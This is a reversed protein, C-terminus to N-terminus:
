AYTECSADGGIRTVTEEGTVIAALEGRVRSCKRETEGPPQGNRNASTANLPTRLSERSGARDPRSACGSKGDASCATGPEYPALVLTPPGPWASRRARERAGPGRRCEARGRPENAFGSRTKSIAGKLRIIERARRTRQTALM